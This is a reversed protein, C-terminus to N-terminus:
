HHRGRLPSLGHADSQPADSSGAAPTNPRRRRNRRPASPRTPRIVRFQAGSQLRQPVLAIPPKVDQQAPLTPRHVPLAHLAHHDSLAASAFARQSQARRHLRPVPGVGAPRQIEHRVLHRVTPTETNNTMTSSHVRSRKASTGSVEIEPWRTARSSLRIMAQSPLGSAIWEPLPVSSIRVRDEDPSVLSADFPAVDLQALRRLISEDFAEIRPEPVLQQVLHKEARQRIHPQHQFGTSVVAIM